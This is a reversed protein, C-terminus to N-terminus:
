FGLDIVVDFLKKDFFGYHSAVVYIKSEKFFLENNKKYTKEEQPNEIRGVGEDLFFADVARDFNNRYIAPDSMFVASDFERKIQGSTPLLNGSILKLLTTKGKENEGLILIRDFKFFIFNLDTFISDSNPYSFSVNKFSVYPVTNKRLRGSRNNRQFTFTAIM